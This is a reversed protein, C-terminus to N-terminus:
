KNLQELAWEAGARFDEKAMKKGDFDIEIGDDTDWQKQSYKESEIEIDASTPLSQGVDPMSLASNIAEIDSAEIAYNCEFSAADEIKSKLMKLVEIPSM